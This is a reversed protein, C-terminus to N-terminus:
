GRSPLRRRALSKWPYPVSLFLPVSLVIALPITMLGISLTTMDAIWGTVSVGMGGVGVALGLMLGSVLGVNGPAIEHAMAVTVAFTSWLIFGFVMLAVLSLIGGSTLFVVFPPIATVLGVITFEKRGYRDSLTGGVVQGVVGAILMASVLLNATVLDFGRMTLITPLFAVSGFIAWARLGSATVLLAIARYSPKAAPVSKAPVADRDPAPLIRRLGAAIAIGPVALIVLGPLGMLGVVIGACIPGIAYGLNGGIVFYSTIRGRSADRTLRSVTGLASPHFFAHGLAAVAVSALVLYYNNLLGVISIFIASIAVSTGVHVAFGRTDFIWGVLPQVFSSTLNYITVILGALFFSYGQDVILLPLIAPLVPSYLDTVLHAASLGWVPKTDATM